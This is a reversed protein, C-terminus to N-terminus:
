ALEALKDRQWDSRNQNEQRGCVDVDKNRVGAVNGVCVCVGFCVLVLKVMGLIWRALVVAGTLMATIFYQPFRSGLSYTNANGNRNEEIQSRRRGEGEGEIGEGEGEKGRRKEERGGVSTWGGSVWGWSDGWM